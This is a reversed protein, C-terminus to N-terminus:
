AYSTKKSATKPKIFEVCVDYMTVDPKIPLSRLHKVSMGALPIRTKRPPSSPAAAAGNRREARQGRSRALRRLTQMM